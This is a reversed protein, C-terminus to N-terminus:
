SSLARKTTLSTCAAYRQVVLARYADASLTRLSDAALPDCLGDDPNPEHLLDALHVALSNLLRSPAWQGGHLIGCLQVDGTTPSVQPHYPITPVRFRVRPPVFPYAPPVVVELAFCLGTYPTDEGNV